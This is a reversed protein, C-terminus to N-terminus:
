LIKKKKMEEYHQNEEHMRLDYGSKFRRVPDCLKCAWKQSHHKNIEQSSDNQQLRAVGKWFFMKWKSDNGAARLAFRTKALECKLCKFVETSADLNALDM